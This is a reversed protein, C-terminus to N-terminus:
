HVRASLFVQHLRDHDVDVTCLRRLLEVAQSADTEKSFGAMILKLQMVQASLVREVSLDDVILCPRGADSGQGQELWPAISVLLNIIKSMDTLLMENLMSAPLGTVTNVDYATPNETPQTDVFGRSTKELRDQLHPSESKLARKLGNIEFTQVHTDLVAKESQDCTFPAPIESSCEISSIEPIIKLVVDPNLYDYEEFNLRSLDSPLHSRHTASRRYPEIKDFAMSYYPGKTVCIFRPRESPLNDLLGKDAAPSNQIGMVSMSVLAGNPNAMRQDTCGVTVDANDVFCLPSKKPYEFFHDRAVEVQMSAIGELRRTVKEPPACMSQNSCRKVLVKPVKYSLLQMAHFYHEEPYGNQLEHGKSRIAALSPIAKVLYKGIKKMCRIERPKLTPELKNAVLYLAEPNVQETKINRLKGLMDSFFRSSRCVVAAIPATHVPAVLIGIVAITIITFSKPKGTLSTNTISAFLPKTIDLYTDVEHNLYASESKKKTSNVKQVMDARSRQEHTLVQRTVFSFSIVADRLYNCVNLNHNDKNTTPNKFRMHLFSHVLFTVNQVVLIKRDLTRELLDPDLIIKVRPSSIQEGSKDGHGNLSSRYRVGRTVVLSFGDGEIKKSTPSPAAPLGSTGHITGATCDFLRRAFSGKGHLGDYADELDSQLVCTLLSAVRGLSSFPVKMENATFFFAEAASKVPPTEIDIVYPLKKTTGRLRPKLESLPGRIGISAPVPNASVGGNSKNNIIYKRDNIKVRASDGQCDVLTIDKTKVCDEIAAQLSRIPVKTYAHAIDKHTGAM